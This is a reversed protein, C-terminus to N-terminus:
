ELYHENLRAQLATPVSKWSAICLAKPVLADSPTVRAFLWQGLGEEYRWRYYPGDARRSYFVIYRDRADISKPNIYVRLGNM